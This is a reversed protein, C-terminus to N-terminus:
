FPLQYVPNRTDAGEQRIRELEARLASLLWQERMKDGEPHEALTRYLAMGHMTTMMTLLTAFFGTSIAYRPFLSAMMAVFRDRFYTSSSGLFIDRLDPTTRAAMLLELLVIHRPSMVLAKMLAIIREEESMGAPLQAALTLASEFIDDVVKRGVPQMLENKTAFHRFLAGQSVGARGCILQVSTGHYGSELLCEIAAEVLKGITSERRSQQTRRTQM